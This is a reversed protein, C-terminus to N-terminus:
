GRRLLIKNKAIFINSFLVLAEIKSDSRIITEDIGVFIKFRMVGHHIFYLQQNM